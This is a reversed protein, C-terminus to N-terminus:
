LTPQLPLKRRRHAPLMKGRISYPLAATAAYTAHPHHQTPPATATIATVTIYSLTHGLCHPLPTTCPAMTAPLVCQENTISANLTSMSSTIAANAASIAASAAADAMSQATSMTVLAEPPSNDRQWMVTGSTPARDGSVRRRLIRNTSLPRSSKCPTFDFLTTATLTGCAAPSESSNMAVLITTSSIVVERRLHHARVLACCVVLPLSCGRRAGDWHARVGCFPVLVNLPFLTCSRHEHLHPHM